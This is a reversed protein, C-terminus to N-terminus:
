DFKAGGGKEREGLLSKPGEEIPSVGWKFVCDWVLCNGWEGKPKYKQPAFWFPAVQSPNGQHTQLKETQPGRRGKERKGTFAPPNPVLTAVKGWPINVRLHNL